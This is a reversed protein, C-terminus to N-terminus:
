NHRKWNNPINRGWGKRKRCFYYNSKDVLKSLNSFNQLFYKQFIIENPKFLDTTFYLVVAEGLLAVILVFFVVVFMKTKKIWIFDMGKRNYNLGKDLQEM